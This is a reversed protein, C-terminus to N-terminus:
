KNFLGVDEEKKIKMMKKSSYVSLYHNMSTFEWMLDKTNQSKM